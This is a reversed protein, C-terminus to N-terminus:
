EGGKMAENINDNEFTLCGSQYESIIDDIYLQLADDIELGEWADEHVLVYSAGFDFDYLHEVVEQLSWPPVIEEIEDMLCLVDDSRTQELFEVILEYKDYECLNYLRDRLELDEKTYM